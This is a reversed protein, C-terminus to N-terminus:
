VLSSRQEVETQRANRESKSRTIDQAQSSAPWSYDKRLTAAPAAAAAAVAAGQVERPANEVSVGYKQRLKSWSALKEDHKWAAIEEFTKELVHKEQQAIKTVWESVEAAALAECNSLMAQMGKVCKM